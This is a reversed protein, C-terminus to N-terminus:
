PEFTLRNGLRATGTEIVAATEYRGLVAVGALPRNAYARLGNNILRGVERMMRDEEAASAAPSAVIVSPSLSDFRNTNIAELIDRYRATSAANVIFEGDSIRALNADDRPGGQGRFLGGDAFAPPQQTAIVAVNKLGAAITLGALAPGFVPGKGVPPPALAAAAGQYTSMVAQGVSAIQQLLFFRRAAEARKAMMEEELAERKEEYAQEIAAREDASQAAALAEQEATDLAANRKRTESEIKREADQRYLTNLNSFLAGFAQFIQGLSRVIDQASQDFAADLQAAAEDVDGIAQGIRLLQLVIENAEREREEETLASNSRVADLEEQLIGKREELIQRELALEARRREELPLDATAQQLALRREEEFIERQQRIIEAQLEARREAIRRERAEEENAINALEADLDLRAQLLQLYLERRRDTGAQEADLERQIRDVRDALIDVEAEGQLRRFGEEIRLRRDNFVREAELTREQATDIIQQRRNQYALEILELLEANRRAAKVQDDYWIRLQALERAQADAILEIRLLERQRTQEPSLPGVAQNREEAELRIRRQNLQEIRANLAEIEAQLRQVEEVGSRRQERGRARLLEQRAEQLRRQLQAAVLEQGAIEFRVDDATALLDDLSRTLDDTAAANERQSRTFSSFLPLLATLGLALLGIPGLSVLLGRTAATLTRFSGALTLIGASSTATRGDLARLVQQWTLTNRIVPLIGTVNLAIYTTTLTGTLSIISVLRPDIENLLTLLGRSGEIFPLLGTALLGGIEERVDGLENQLQRFRGAPTEAIARATGQFRAELERLIVAQAEALRGTEAFNEIQARQEESFTVGTRRLTELANAPDELARALRLANSRLDGGLVASLDIAAETVRPLIDTGLNNFTLLVAQTELIAEDGVTTLQQLAAAQQQLQEATVESQRGTARLVSELRVEAIIQREYLSFNAGFVSSFASWAGELAQVTVRVNNLSVITQESFTQADRKSRVFQAGLQKIGDQTLDLSAIAQRGDVSIEIQIINDNAM